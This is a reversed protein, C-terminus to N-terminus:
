LFLFMLFTNRFPFNDVLNVTVCSLCGTLIYERRLLSSWHLSGSQIESYRRAGLMLQLQCMIFWTHSLVVIHVLPFTM